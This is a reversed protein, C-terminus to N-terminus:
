GNSSEKKENRAKRAQYKWYVQVVFFAAWLSVSVLVLIEGIYM